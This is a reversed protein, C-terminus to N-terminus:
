DLVKKSKQYAIGNEKCWKEAERIYFAKELNSFDSFIVKNNQEIYVNFMHDYQQKDNEFQAFYLSLKKNKFDEIYKRDFEYLDPTFSPIINNEALTEKDEIAYGFARIEEANHFRYTNKDFYYQIEDSFCYNSYLFVIDELVIYVM